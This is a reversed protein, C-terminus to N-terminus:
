EKLLISNESAVTVKFISKQFSIKDNAMFCLPSPYCGIAHDRSVKKTILALLTM